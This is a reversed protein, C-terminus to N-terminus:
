ATKKLPGTLTEEVREVSAGTVPESAMLAGLSLVLAAIMGAVAISGDIVSSVNDMASVGRVIQVESNSAENRPGMCHLAYSQSVM